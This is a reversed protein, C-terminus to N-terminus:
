LLTAVVIAFPLKRCLLLAVVIVELKQIMTSREKRQQFYFLGGLELEYNVQTM